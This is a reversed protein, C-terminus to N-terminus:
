IRKYGPMIHGLNSNYVISDRVLKLFDYVSKIKVQGNGKIKKPLGIYGLNSKDLSIM